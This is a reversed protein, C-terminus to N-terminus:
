IINYKRINAFYQIEKGRLKNALDDDENHFVAIDCYRETKRGSFYYHLDSLLNKNNLETTLLYDGTNEYFVATNFGAKLLLDFVGFADNRSKYLFPDYEFFIVPKVESLFDIENKIIRCDFGDTDIKLLKSKKFESYESVIKEITKFNIVSQKGGEIIKGSGKSYVYNGSIFEKDGVFSKEIFINQYNKTNRQLLSIFKEEGEICLIPIDVKSKVMLVTDGVNAGIDIMRLDDYKEKVLSAIRGVNEDYFPFVKKNVSLNHSFPLSINIGALKYKIEPDIFNVLKNRITYFIKQNLKDFLTDPKSNLYRNLIFQAVIKKIM